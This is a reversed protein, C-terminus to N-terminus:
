VARLHLTAGEPIWTSLDEPRAGLEELGDVEVSLRVGPFDRLVRGQLAFVAEAPASALSPVYVVVSPEASVSEGYTVVQVVGPISVVEQLFRACGRSTVSMEPRENKVSKKFTFM